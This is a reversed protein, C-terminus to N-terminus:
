CLILTFACVTLIIYLESHDIEKENHSFHLDLSKQELYKPLHQYKHSAWLLFSSGFQKLRPFSFSLSIQATGINKGALFVAIYEATNFSM